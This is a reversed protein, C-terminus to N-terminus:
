DCVRVRREGLYRGWSDYAPQWTRYCRPYAPAYYPDAVYTPGGYYGYGYGYAPRTAGAFLAGLALGGVVGAAVAGGYGRRRYQAEAPSAAVMSMLAAATLTGMLVKGTNM